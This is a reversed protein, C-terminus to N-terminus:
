FRPRLFKALVRRAQVLANLSSVLSDVTDSRAQEIQEDSKNGHKEQKIKSFASDLVSKGESFLFRDLDQMPVRGAIERLLRLWEQPPALLKVKGPFVAAVYLRSRSSPTGFYAANNAQALVVYGLSCLLKSVIQATTQKALNELFVQPNHVRSKSSAKIARVRIESRLHTGVYSRHSQSTGVM